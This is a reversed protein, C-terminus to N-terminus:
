STKTASLETLARAIQKRLTKQKNVNRDQSGAAGFRIARLEERTQAVLKMLEGAGKGKMDSM